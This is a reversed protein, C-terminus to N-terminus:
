CEVVVGSVTIPQTLLIARNWDLSNSASPKVNPMLCMTIHPQANVCKLPIDSDFLFELGKVVAKTVRAACVGLDDDWCFADVTLEAIKGLVDPDNLCEVSGLNLTLHHPLPKNDPTRCIFGSCWDWDPMEELHWILRFGEGKDLVVATYM